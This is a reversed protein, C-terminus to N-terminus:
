GNHQYHKEVDLANLTINGDKRIAERIEQVSGKKLISKITREKEEFSIEPSYISILHHKRDLYLTCYGRGTIDEFVIIVGLEGRELAPFATYDESQIVLAIRNDVNGFCPNLSDNFKRKPAQFCNTIEPHDDKSLSSLDQNLPYHISSIINIRIATGHGVNIIYTEVVPINSEDAYKKDRLVLIPKVSEMRNKEAEALLGHTLNVYKWTVLILAVAAGTQIWLPNPSSSSEFILSFVIGLIVIVLAVVLPLKSNKKM